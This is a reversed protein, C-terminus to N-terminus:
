LFLKTQKQKKIQRLKKKKKKGEEDKQSLRGTYGLRAEFRPEEAKAKLNSLNCIHTVM